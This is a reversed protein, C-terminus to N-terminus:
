EARKRQTRSVVLLGVLGYVIGNLASISGIAWWPSSVVNIIPLAIVTGPASLIGLISSVGPVQGLAFSTNLLVLALGAAFGIWFAQMKSFHSM